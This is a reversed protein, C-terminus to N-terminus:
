RRVSARWMVVWGNKHERDRDREKRLRERVLVFFLSVLFVWSFRLTFILIFLCFFLSVFLHCCLLIFVDCESSFARFDKGTQESDLQQDRPWNGLVLLLMVWTTQFGQYAFKGAEDLNINQKRSTAITKHSYTHLYLLCLSQCCVKAERRNRRDGSDWDWGWIQILIGIMTEREKDGFSYLHIRRWGGM